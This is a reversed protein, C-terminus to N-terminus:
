DRTQKGLVLLAVVPLRPMAAAAAHLGIGRTGDDGPQLRRPQRPPVLQGRGVALLEGRTAPEDIPKEIAFWRALVRAVNGDLIPEPKGFAISAIAGATYRGVGPLEAITAPDSPVAGGHDAVIKKAAAHLNKARRYYGLGQWLLFVDQEGAAALAAVTPFKAIFRQFFAIVTAVQTQQLM